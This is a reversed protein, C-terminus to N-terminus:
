HPVPDIVLTKGMLETGMPNIAEIWSLYKDTTRQPYKRNKLLIYVLQSGFGAAFRIAYDVLQNEGRSFRINEFEPNELNVVPPIKGLELAKVTAVDEFSVGMPHATLGKTNSIIIENLHEEFVSSLAEIETKAANGKPPTFTEHSMYLCSQAIDAVTLQYQTTMKKMFTKFCQKVHEPNMKTGHYASNAFYSGMIDAIPNVGRKATESDAEIVLGVAGMGLIMGSRYKDFPRAAQEIELQTTAAGAALFGTAIWHFTTENTPDDAAVVIVRKCRGLKIWDSAIAIAQTTSACASNIGTNPGRANIIQAFNGSQIPIAKLLYKRDFQYEDEEELLEEIISSASDGLRQCLKRAFKRKDLSNVHQYFKSQEELFTNAAPFTSAFIIGTDDVMDDPLSLRGDRRILPIRADKLAELGAAIALQTTIEWADILGSGVHYEEVLNFKGAEGALRVLDSEQTLNKFMIEGGNRRKQIINQRQQFAIKQKGVQSIFNKGNLLQDINDQAFIDKKPGPLGLGVGTITIPDSPKISTM